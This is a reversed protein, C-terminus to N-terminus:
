SLFWSLSCCLRGSAKDAALRASGLADLSVASSFHTCCPIHCRKVCAATGLVPQAAGEAPGQTIKPVLAARTGEQSVSPTRTSSDETGSSTGLAM